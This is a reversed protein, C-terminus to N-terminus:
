KVTDLTMEVTDPPIDQSPAELMLLGAAMKQERSKALLKEILPNQTKVIKGQVGFECKHMKDSIKYRFLKHCASCKYPTVGTHIRQHVLYSVRQRFSKGCIECCFPKEGSHIREHNHLTSLEKFARGCSACVYPKEDSHYLLHKHFSQQFTFAKDCQHCKYPTEGTHLRNHKKLFYKTTFLKSCLKCEWQKGEHTKLHQLLHPEKKFTKSCLTCSFTQLPPSAVTVSKLESSKSSSTSPSSKSSNSLGLHAVKLHIMLSGKMKFVRPCYSCKNSFGGSEGDAVKEQGDQPINHILQNHMALIDPNQFLFHCTECKYLLHEGTEAGLPNALEDQTNALENSLRHTHKSLNQVRETDIRNSLEDHATALEDTLQHAHRSLNEGVRHPSAFDDHANSLEDLEDDIRRAYKSNTEETHQHDNQRKNSAFDGGNKLIVIGYANPVLQSNSNQSNQINELNLAGRRTEDLFLHDEFKKNMTLLQLKKLRQNKFKNQKEKFMRLRNSGGPKKSEFSSSNTNGMSIKDKRSSGIIAKYSYPQYLNEYNSNKFLKHDSINSQTDFESSMNLDPQIKSTQALNNIMQLHNGDCSPEEEMTTTTTNDDIEGTSSNFLANLKDVQNDRSSEELIVNTQLLNMQNMNFLQNMSNVENWIFNSKDSGQAAPNEINSNSINTSSEASNPIQNIMHSSPSNVNSSQHHHHHYLETNTMDISTDNSLNANSMENLFQDIDFKLGDIENGDKFKNYDFFKDCFNENDLLCMEEPVKSANTKQHKIATTSEVCDQNVLEIDQHDGLDQQPGKVSKDQFLSGTALEENLRNQLPKLEVGTNLSNIQSFDVGQKEMGQQHAQVYETYGVPSTTIRTGYSENPVSELIVLDNDPNIIIPAQAETSASASEIRFEGNTRKSHGTLDDITFTQVFPNGINSITYVKGHNNAMNGTLDVAAANTNVSVLKGSSDRIKLDGCIAGINTIVSNGAFNNLNVSVNGDQVSLLNKHDTIIHIILNNIGIYNNICLPCTLKHKNVNLINNIYKQINVYKTINCVPCLFILSQLKIQSM